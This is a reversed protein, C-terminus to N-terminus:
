PAGIEVLGLGKLGPPNELSSPETRNSRLAKGGIQRILRLRNTNLRRGRKGVVFSPQASSSLRVLLYHDDLIGMRIGAQDLKQDLIRWPVPSFIVMTTGYQNHAPYLNLETLREAGLHHQLV